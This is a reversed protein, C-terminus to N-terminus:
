SQELGHTNKFVDKSIVRPKGTEGANMYSNVLMNQLWNNIYYHDPVM